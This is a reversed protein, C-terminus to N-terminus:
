EIGVCGANCRTWTFDRRILTSLHFGQACATLLPTLLTSKRCGQACVRRPPSHSSGSIRSTPALHTCTSHRQDECGYSIAAVRRENLAAVAQAPSLFAEAPMDQCRLLTEGGYARLWAVSVLKITGDRLRRSLTEPKWLHTLKGGQLRWAAYYRRIQWSLPSNAAAVCGLSLLVWVSCFLSDFGLPGIGYVAQLAVLPPAYFPAGRVGVWLRSVIKEWVLRGVIARAAAGGPEVGEMEEDLEIPDLSFRHFYWWGMLMGVATIELVIIIRGLAFANTTETSMAEWSWWSIILAIIAAAFGAVKNVAEPYKKRWENLMMFPCAVPSCVVLFFLGAYFQWPCNIKISRM